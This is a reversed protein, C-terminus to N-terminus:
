SFSMYLRVWKANLLRGPISEKVLCPKEAAFVPSMIHKAGNLPSEVFDLPEKHRQM